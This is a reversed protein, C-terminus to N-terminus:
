FDEVPFTPVDQNGAAPVLLAIPYPGDSAFQHPRVKRNATPEDPYRPAPQIPALTFGTELLPDVSPEYVCAPFGSPSLMMVRDDSCTMTETSTTPMTISLAITVVAPIAYSNVM